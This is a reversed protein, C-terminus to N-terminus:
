QDSLLPTSGSSRQEKKENLIGRPLVGIIYGPMPWSFRESSSGALHGARDFAPFHKYVLSQFAEAKCALDITQMNMKETLAKYTILVEVHHAFHKKYITPGQLLVGSQVFMFQSHWFDM